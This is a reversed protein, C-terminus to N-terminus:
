QPTDDLGNLSAQFAEAEKALQALDAKWASGLQEIEREKAAIRAAMEARTKELQSLHLAEKNASAKESELWWGTAKALDGELSAVDQRM